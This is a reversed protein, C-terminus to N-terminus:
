FVKDSDSVLFQFISAPPDVSGEHNSVASWALTHSEPSPNQVAVAQANHFAGLFAKAQSVISRPKIIDNDWVVKNRASWTSWALTLFLHFDSSDLRHAVFRLWTEASGHWHAVIDWPLDSLSWIKRAMDCEILIHVDTEVNKVLFIGNKSYHWVLLDDIPHQALPISLIADVDPAWFIQRVIQTNWTRTTPDFLSAVSANYPLM